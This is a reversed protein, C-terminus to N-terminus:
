YIQEHKNFIFKSIGYCLPLSILTTIRKFYKNLNFINFYDCNYWYENINIIDENANLKVIILDDITLGYKKNSIEYGYWVIMKIVIINDYHIISKVNLIKSSILISLAKFSALFEDLSNYLVIPDEFKFANNFINMPDEQNSITKLFNKDLSYLNNLGKLILKRKDSISDPDIRTSAGSINNINIGDTNLIAKM